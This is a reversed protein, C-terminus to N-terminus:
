SSPRLAVWAVLAGFAVLIAALVLGAHYGELFAAAPNGGRRAAAGQRRAVVAGVLAIGLMGSFERAASVAGSVAGSSGDPSRDLTSATLPVTVASGAGIAILGPLLNVFDGGEGVRALLLLGATVTLLGGASTRHVGFVRVLVYTLPTTLILSLAMPVFALGAKTPTFDLGQQLFLATFFFVGNVGLGWLVQAAVGGSFARDRFIALDIMRRAGTRQRILFLFLAGASSGFAWIIPTSIFGHRPGEILGYACGGAALCSLAVATPDFQRYWRGASQGGPAGPTPTGARGRQPVVWAVTAMALVGFPVNVAFIWGWGWHQSIFGGLVPGLALAVALAGMWIAIGAARARPGLDRTLVALSAPIVFAAGIGQVGRFSILAAGSDSLGCLLSATTFLALGALLTPRRGWVDASRGGTLLVAAFTLPYAAAVWELDSLDLRLEQQIRPLAVNVVTNDLCTMFSAFALAVLLGYDGPRRM